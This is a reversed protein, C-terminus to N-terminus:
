VTRGTRTHRHMADILDSYKDAIVHRKPKFTGTLEDGVEFAKPV